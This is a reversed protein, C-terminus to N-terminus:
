EKYFFSKLTFLERDVRLAESNSHTVRYEVESIDSEFIFVGSKYDIFKAGSAKIFAALHLERKSISIIM